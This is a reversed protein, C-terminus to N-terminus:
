NGAFHIGVNYYHKGWQELHPMLFGMQADSQPLQMSPTGRIPQYESQRAQLHIGYPIAVVLVLLLSLAVYLDKLGLIM